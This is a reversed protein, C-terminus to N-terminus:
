VVLVALIGLWVAGLFHWYMGVLTVGEHDDVTYRGRRARLAVWVLPVLGGVVHLVHLFSLVYVGFLYLNNQPLESAAALRAWGSVQSLVFAVALLAAMSVMHTLRSAEAADAAREALVLVASIMVLLATSIWFAPPLGPSGVPPWVSAQVRIVVFGVLSGGFLMSLSALFLWMGLRRREAYEAIVTSEAAAGSAAM